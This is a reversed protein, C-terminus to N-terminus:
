VAFIQIRREKLACALLKRRKQQATQAREKRLGGLIGNYWAGFMKDLLKQIFFACIIKRFKTCNAHNVFRLIKAIIIVSLSSFSM